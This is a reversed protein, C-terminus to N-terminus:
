TTQYFNVSKQSCLGNIEVLKCPTVDRLAAPNMNITTLADFIM